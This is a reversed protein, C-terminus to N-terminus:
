FEGFNPNLRCQPSPISITTVGESNTCRITHSGIPMDKQYPAFVPEGDFTCTLGDQSCLTADGVITNEDNRVIWSVRCMDTPKDVIQKDQTTTIVPSCTPPPTVTRNASCSVSTGGDSCTWTYGAGVSVSSATGVGCLNPNTPPLSFTQGNATGCSPAFPSDKIVKSFDIWGVVDSGWAFGSITNGSLIPGYAIPEGTQTSLSIWGDWGKNDASLAKAWGTLNSGLFKPQCPEIPCGSNENFSVWGINDSWAYGSLAGDSAVSVGYPATAPSENTSSFSVWGINDSWGYGKLDGVLSGGTQSFSKSSFTFVGAVLTILIILLPLKKNM